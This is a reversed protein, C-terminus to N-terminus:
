RSNQQYHDHEQGATTAQTQVYEQSMSWTDIMQWTQANNCTWVNIHSTQYYMPISTLQWSYTEWWCLPYWRVLSIKHSSRLHASPIHIWLCEKSTIASTSVTKKHRHLKKRMDYQNFSDIKLMKVTVPMTSTTTSVQRSPWASVSVFNWSNCM